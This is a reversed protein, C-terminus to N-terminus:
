LSAYEGGGSGGDRQVLNRVVRVGENVNAPFATWFEHNPLMEVGQKGGKNNLAIGVVFYAAGVFGFILFGALGWNRTNAVPCAEFAPWEIEATDCDQGPVNVLRATKPHAGKGGLPDCKLIIRLGVAAPACTEGDSFELVLGGSAHETAPIEKM